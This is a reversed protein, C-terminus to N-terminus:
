YSHHINSVTMLSVGRPASPDNGAKREEHERIYKALTGAWARLQHILISNWLTLLSYVSYRTILLLIKGDYLWPLM